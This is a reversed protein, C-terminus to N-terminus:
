ERVLLVNKGVSFTFMLNKSLIIFIVSDYLAIYIRSLCLYEVYKYKTKPSALQGTRDKLNYKSFSFGFILVNKWLGFDEAVTCPGQYSAWTNPTLDNSFIIFFILSSASSLSIYVFWLMLAVEIVM